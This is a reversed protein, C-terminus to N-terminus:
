SGVNVDVDVDGDGYSVNMEGYGKSSGVEDM